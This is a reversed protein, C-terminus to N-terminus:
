SPWGVQAHPVAGEKPDRQNARTGPGTDAANRGRRKDRSNYRGSTHGIQWSYWGTNGVSVTLKEILCSNSKKVKRKKVSLRTNRVSCCDVRLQDNFTAYNSNLDFLQKYVWENESIYIVSLYLHIEASTSAISVLTQESFV